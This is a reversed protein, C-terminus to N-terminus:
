HRRSTLFWVAVWVLQGCGFLAGMIVGAWAHAKGRAHPHENAYRLGKLGLIFAPIGLGIGLLPVLSFIGLYYATVASPNRPFFASAPPRAPGLDAGCQHCDDFAPANEAGCEPCFM